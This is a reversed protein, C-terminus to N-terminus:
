KGSPCYCITNYDGHIKGNQCIKQLCCMWLWKCYTKSFHRAQNSIDLDTSESGVMKLFNKSNIEFTKYASESMQHVSRLSTAQSNQAFVELAKDIVSPERFPTTPRIHAIYEPECWNSRFFDLAHIIFQYDTSNDGSIEIPRLFPVEAGMAEAMNAYSKSDTSVVVKDIVKSALCAAISWEILPRGGLMKINKDLVGKSGSRAPILAVISPKIKEM